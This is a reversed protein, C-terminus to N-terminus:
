DCGVFLLLCVFYYWLVMWVFWVVDDECFYVVGCFVGIVYGFILGLVWLLGLMGDFGCKGLILFRM